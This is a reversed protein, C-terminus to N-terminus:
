IFLNNTENTFLEKVSKKYTMGIEVSHGTKFRIIGNPIDVNKVYEINFVVNRRCQFMVRTDIMQLFYKLTVYPIKLIDHERTFIYLVHKLCEVYVVDKLDVSFIIGDKKFYLNKPYSRTKPFHLCEKVTALVKKPDFPKEIFSYCHFKEYSIFKSDELSTIFIIPTFQYCEVMRVKEAYYLGSTDMQINKNLIIDIIFIDITNELMCKCAEDMNKMEYVNVEKGISRILDGLFSLTNLNDELVLINKLGNGRM